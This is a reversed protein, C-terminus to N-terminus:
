AWQIRLREEHQFGPRCVDTTAVFLETAARIVESQPGSGRFSTARTASDDLWPQDRGNASRCGCV